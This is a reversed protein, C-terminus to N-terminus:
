KPSLAFKNFRPISLLFLIINVCGIKDVKSILILKLLSPDEFFYNYIALNGVDGVNKKQKLRQFYTKDPSNSEIVGIKASKYYKQISKVCEFITDNSGDYYCAIVFIKSTNM